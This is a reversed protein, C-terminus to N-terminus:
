RNLKCVEDYQLFEVRQRVGDSADIAVEALFRKEHLKRLEGTAGASEGKVVRVPKGVAPLVTELPKERVTVTMKVDDGLLERKFFRPHVLVVSFGDRSGNEMVDVLGREGGAGPLNRVLFKPKGPFHNPAFRAFLRAFVDYGGGPSYTVTVNVTKRNFWAEFDRGSPTATATPVAPPPTVGPSITTPTATPQNAIATATPLPTATTDTGCAALGIAIASSGISLLVLRKLSFM